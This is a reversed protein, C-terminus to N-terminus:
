ASRARLAAACLALAPTAAHGFRGLVDATPKTPVGHCSRSGDNNAPYCVSWPTREPVLTMAADLSATYAPPSYRVRMDDSVRAFYANEVDNYELAILKNAFKFPVPAGIAQFVAADMERCPGTLAEVREALGSGHLSKDSINDSIDSMRPTQPTQKHPTM